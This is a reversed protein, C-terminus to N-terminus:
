PFRLGRIHLTEARARAEEESLPTLPDACEVRLSAYATALRLAYEASAQRALLDTLAAVMTDGAGTPDVTRAAYAEIELVEQETALIAGRSGRMLLGLRAGRTLIISVAQLPDKVGAAACFEPETGAVLDIRAWPLNAERLRVHHGVQYRVFGQLDVALFLARRRLISLGEPSIEGLVPSVVVARSEPVGELERLRFPKPVANVELSREGSQVYRLIFRFSRTRACLRLIAHIQQLHALVSSPFDGGVLATIMYRSGMSSLVSAAYLAPGGPKHEVRGDSRHVEDITFSSVVTTEVRSLGTDGRHDM